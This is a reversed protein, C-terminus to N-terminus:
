EAACNLLFVGDYDIASRYMEIGQGCSLFMIGVEGNDTVTNDSITGFASAWLNIGQQRNSEFTCGVITFYNSSGLYMGAWKCDGAVVGGFDLAASDKVHIGYWNSSFDSDSVRVTSSSRIDLGLDNNVAKVREVAAGTSYEILINSVGQYYHDETELDGHLFCDRLVYRANTGYVHICHTTTSYIEWGSIVYPDEFAGSGGVVGNEETFGDDSYISIPDHPVYETPPASIEVREALFSTGPKGIYKFTAYYIFAAELPLEESLEGVEKVESQSIEEQLGERIEHVTVEVASGGLVILEVRWYCDTTPNITAVFIAWDTSGHESKGVEFVRNPFTGTQDGWATADTAVYATVSVFAVAIVFAAITKRM